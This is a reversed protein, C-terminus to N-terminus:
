GKTDEKEIIRNISESKIEDVTENVVLQAFGTERTQGMRYVRCFSQKEVAVNWWPEM